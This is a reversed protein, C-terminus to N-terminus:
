RTGIAPARQGLYRRPRGLGLRHAPGEELTSEAKDAGGDTVGEHLRDPHHVIMEDGAEAVGFEGAWAASFLGDAANPGDRVRQPTGGLVGREACGGGGQPQVTKLPRFRVPNRPPKGFRSNSFPTFGVFPGMEFDKEISDTYDAFDTTVWARGKGGQM